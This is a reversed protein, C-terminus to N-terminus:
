KEYFKNIRIKINKFVEKATDYVCEDFWCISCHFCNKNGGMGKSNKGTLCIPCTMKNRNTM